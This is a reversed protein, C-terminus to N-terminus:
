SFCVAAVEALRYKWGDSLMSGIIGGRDGRVGRTAGQFGRGITHVRNITATLAELKGPPAAGILYAPGCM